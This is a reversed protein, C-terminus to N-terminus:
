QLSCEATRETGGSRMIVPFRHEDDAIIGKEVAAMRVIKDLLEQSPYAGIYYLKGAPIATQRQRPATRTQPLPM